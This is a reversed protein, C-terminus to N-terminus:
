AGISYDSWNREFARRVGTAHEELMQICRHAVVGDLVGWSVMQCGRYFWAPPTPARSGISERPFTWHQEVRQAPQDLVMSHIELSGDLSWGVVSQLSSLRQASLDIMLVLDASAPHGPLHRSHFTLGAFLAHGSALILDNRSLDFVFGQQRLEASTQRLLPSALAISRAQELEVEQLPRAEAMAGEASPALAQSAAITSTVATIGLTM